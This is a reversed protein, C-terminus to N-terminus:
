KLLNYCISSTTFSPPIYEFDEPPLGTGTRTRGGAGYPFRPTLSWRGAGKKNRDSPLHGYQHGHDMKEDVLARLEDRSVTNYRKFVSMIKHDTVAMIRFYDHGELRRDGSERLDHPTLKGKRAADRGMLLCGQCWRPQGWPIRAYHNLAKYGSQQSPQKHTLGWGLEECGYVNLEPILTHASDSKRIRAQAKSSM